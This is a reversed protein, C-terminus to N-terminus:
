FSHLVICLIKSELCFYIVNNAFNGRIIWPLRNINYFFYIALDWKSKILLFKERNTMIKGKKEEKQENKEHKEFSISQWGTWSRIYIEFWFSQSIRFVLTIIAIHFLSASFCLVKIQKCILNFRCISHTRMSLPFQSTYRLMIFWNMNTESKLLWFPRM